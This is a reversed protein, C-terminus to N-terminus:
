DGCVLSNNLSAVKRRLVDSNVTNTPNSTVLELATSYEELAECARSQKELAQGLLNHAFAKQSDLGIAKRLAPEAANPDNLDLYVAGLNIWPWIWGPEAVTAQRYFERANGKDKLNVYVRGLRNLVLSWNPQLKAARQYDALAANFDKRAFAV